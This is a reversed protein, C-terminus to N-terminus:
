LRCATLVPLGSPSCLVLVSTRIPDARAQGLIHTWGDVLVQRSSQNVPQWVIKSQRTQCIRYRVTTCNVMCSHYACFSELALIPLSLGCVSRLDATTQPRIDPRDRILQHKVTSIKLMHDIAISRCHRSRRFPKMDNRQM